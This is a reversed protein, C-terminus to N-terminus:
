VLGDSSWVVSWVVSWVAAALVVVPRLLTFPGLGVLLAFTSLPM